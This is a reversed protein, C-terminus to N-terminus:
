KRTTYDISMEEKIMDKMIEKSFTNERAESRVFWQPPDYYGDAKWMKEAIYYVMQEYDEEGRPNIIPVCINNDKAFQRIKKFDSEIKDAAKKRYEVNLEPTLTQWNNDDQYSM